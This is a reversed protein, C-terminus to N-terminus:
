RQFTKLKLYDDFSTLKFLELTKFSYITFKLPQFTGQFNQKGPMLTYCSLLSQNQFLLEIRHNQDLRM